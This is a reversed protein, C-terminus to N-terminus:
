PKLEGNERALASARLFLRKEAASGEALYIFKDSLNKKTQSNFAFPLTPKPPPSLPHRLRLGLDSLIALDIPEIQYRHGRWFHQGNMLGSQLHPERHDYHYFNQSSSNATLPLPGGYVRRVTPGDFAFGQATKIVFKDFLSLAANQQRLFGNIGFAHALEHLCVSVFDTRDKPVPALRKKPQPDLWAEESLYKASVRIRLDPQGPHVAKGTRLLHGASEELVLKPSQEIAVNTTSAADPTGTATTEIALELRLHGRMWIKENWIEVAAALNKVLLDRQSSLKKDKDTVRIEYSFPPQAVSGWTVPSLFLLVIALSFSILNQDTAGM